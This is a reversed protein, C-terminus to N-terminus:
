KWVFTVVTRGLWVAGLGFFIQVAVNALATGAGVNRLLLITENGFASYTTFGGLIGAVLFARAEPTPMMTGEFLATLAGIVFCGLVNVALTGFPFVGGARGQVSESLLYRAVSGIFGGIGVWLLTMVGRIIGEARPIAAHM